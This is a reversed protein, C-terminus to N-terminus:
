AGDLCGGLPASPVPSGDDEQPLNLPPVISPVHPPSEFQMTRKMLHGKSPKRRNKGPPPKKFKKELPPTLNVEEVDLNFPPREKRESLVLSSEQIHIRTLSVHSEM